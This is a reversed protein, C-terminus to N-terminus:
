TPAALFIARVKGADANFQARLPSLGNSLVTHAVPRAGPGCGVLVFLSASLWFLLRVRYRDSM